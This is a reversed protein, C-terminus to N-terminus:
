QLSVLVLNTTDKILSHTYIAKRRKTCFWPLIAVYHLGFDQSYGVRIAHYCPNKMAWLVMSLVVCELGKFLKSCHIQAVGIFFIRCPRSEFESTSFGTGRLKSGFGSRILWRRQGTTCAFWVWHQKVTPGGDVVNLWCHVLMLDVDGTQQYDHYHVHLRVTPVANGCGHKYVIQLGYM